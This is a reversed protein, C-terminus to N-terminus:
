EGGVGFARPLTLKEILPVVLNGIVIAYSVGGASRGYVRFLCTLLGLLIGFIIKGNKTIPSTVYDTAMFWAGLMLGGSCLQATLYVPDAGRGGLLIMFLTFSLLYFVPVRFDIIRIIVLFLGGALILVTPTEGITGGTTGLLLDKLPVTGGEKLIALPTAGSVADVGFKTMPGAFSMLLFIRGGLAPNMFNEGLGGYLMKVVAIAFIAGLGGMWLPLTPPLNLTLLIGTLVASFDDVHVTKHTVRCFIYETVVACGVTVAMLVLSHFGSYAVGFVVTPALAAIVTLMIQRTTTKERVHPSESVNIMEAM